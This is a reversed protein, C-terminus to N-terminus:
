RIFVASLSFSCDPSTFVFPFWSSIFSLKLAVVFAQHLRKRGVFPAIIYDILFFERNSISQWQYCRNIIFMIFPRLKSSIVPSLITLKELRNIYCSLLHNYLVSSAQIAISNYKCVFQSKLVAKHSNNFLYFM